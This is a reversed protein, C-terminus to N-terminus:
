TRTIPVPRIVRLNAPGCPFRRVPPWTRPVLTATDMHALLSRDCQLTFIELLENRVVQISIEVREGSAPRPGVHTAARVAGLQASADGADTSSEVKQGVLGFPSGESQSQARLQTLFQLSMLQNM